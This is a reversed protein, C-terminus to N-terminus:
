LDFLTAGYEFLADNITFLDYVENEIFYSIVVDTINGPSLAYEAHALLDKTEDLNLELAIALKVVKYKQPRYASDCRLKSFDRRDIYAKKYVESDKMGKRDILEFLYDSFGPGMNNTLKNLAESTNGKGKTSGSFNIVKSDDTVLGLIEPDVVFESKSQDFHLKTYEKLSNAQESDITIETDEDITLFIEIEESSEYSHFAELAMHYSENATFGKELGLLPVKLDTSGADGTLSAFLGGKKSLKYSSTKKINKIALEACNIYCEKLVNLEKKSHKTCVPIAVDIFFDPNSFECKTLMLDPATASKELERVEFGFVFCEEYIVISFM